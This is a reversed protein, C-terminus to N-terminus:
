LKIGPSRGWIVFGTFSVTRTEPRMEGESIKWFRASLEAMNIDLVGARRLASLSKQAHDVTTSFIVLAGGRRLARLAAGVANWPDGMDLVAADANKVGFGHSVVDAVALEVRDELGLSKINGWAIEAFNPRKEFTYVVGQPGVRWALLAALHGSGTGAEVVVSGPGIGAVLAIFEADLPYIVQTAHRLHPMIDYLTPRLVYLKHGLSTTLVDGYRAAELDSPELFGRITEIRRGSYRVVHKYGDESILLLWDGKKM